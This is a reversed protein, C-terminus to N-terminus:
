KWFVSPVILCSAADEWPAGLGAEDEGPLVRLVRQGLECGVRKERLMEQM